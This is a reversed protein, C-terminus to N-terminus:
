MMGAHATGATACWMWCAPKHPVIVGPPSWVAMTSALAWRAGSSIVCAERSLSGSSTQFLSAAIIGAPTSDHAVVVPEGTVRLGPQGSQRHHDCPDFRLKIHEDRGRLVM